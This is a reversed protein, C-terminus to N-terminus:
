EPRRACIRDIYEKQHDELGIRGFLTAFSQLVHEVAPSTLQGVPMAFKEKAFSIATTKKFKAAEDEDLGRAIAVALDRPLNQVERLLIVYGTDPGGDVSQPLFYHGGLKHLVLERLMASALKESFEYLRKVKRESTIVGLELEKDVLEGFRPANSRFIKSEYPETFFAGRISEISQSNLLSRPLNAATMVSSIQGVLESKTRSLLIDFGDKELWDDMSVVPLYNLIPFKDQDIDCRATIVFGLVERDEYANAYACSFITGQTLQGLLPRTIRM